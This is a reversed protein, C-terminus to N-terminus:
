YGPKPATTHVEALGTLTSSEAVAAHVYATDFLEDYKILVLPLM